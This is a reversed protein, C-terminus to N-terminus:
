QEEGKGAAAPVGVNDNLGRLLTTELRSIQAALIPEARAIDSLQGIYKTRAAPNSVRTSGALWRAFRPSALLAGTSFQAGVFGAATLPHFVWFPAGSIIAQATVAGATNSTNAAAGGRKAGVAVTALDDLAAMSEKPFMISRARSTMNNWSTLFRELSFSAESAKEAAGPTPRGMRNIVTARVSAAEETPMARMLRRLRATNGSQPNGLRELASIIQEGSRPANKGLVPELVEDITQVRRKWFASATQYARAADVRGMANLSTIMENEAVDAVKGLIRDSNSGRLGRQQVQERLTTRMQRVGKPTFAKSGIQRLLSELDTYLSTEKGGVGEAIEDMFGRIRQSTEPLAVRADGARNAARTYLAEGTQGTKESFVNAARRVAEGADEGNVVRGVSQAAGARVTAAQGQIRTIAREIPIDSVFGQRAGATLRRTGTGGTMAPITDVGIRNAAQQVDAGSVPATRPAQVRPAQRIGAVRLGAPVLGAGKPAFPVIAAGIFESVGRAAGMGEQEPLVGGVIDAARPETDIMERASQANRRLSQATGDMGVLDLAGAAAGTFASDIGRRIPRAIDRPFDLAAAAAGEALGGVMNTTADWLTGGVTSAPQAPEPAPPADLQRLHASLARVADGDGAADAARMATYIQERTYTPAANTREFAVPM